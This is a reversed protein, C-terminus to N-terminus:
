NTQFCKLPWQRTQLPALWHNDAVAADKVQVITATSGWRGIWTGLWAGGQCATPRCPACTGGGGSRIPALNHTQARGHIGSSKLPLRLRPSLVVLTHSGETSGCEREGGVCQQVIVHKCRIPCIASVTKLVFRRVDRLDKGKLEIRSTSNLSFPAGCYLASRGLDPM